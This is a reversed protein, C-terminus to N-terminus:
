QRTATAKVYASATGVHTLRTAFDEPANGSLSLGAPFNLTLTSRIDKDAAARVQPLLFDRFQQSSAVTGEYRLEYQSQDATVFSGEIVVQKECDPLTSAVGLLVFATDADFVRLELTGIAGFQARRADEWVRTLAERLVGEHSVAQPSVTFPASDESVKDGLTPPVLGPGPGPGPTPPPPTAPKPWINNERAYTATLVLAQGNIEITPYPDGKGCVLAGCKYVFEGLEIGKRIGRVFISDAELMPLAPDRRYENRLEETTIQGKKLPTRNMIFAPSDPEDGERRLKGAGALVRVVQAQGAGPNASANPVEVTIHALPAPAGALQERASPYFVHRYGQQVCVAVKQEADRYRENLQDRQHPALEQMLSPSRMDELAIRRRMQAKMDEVKSAEAVVFVLNNRNLRTGGDSSRKQFMNVVLDPVSIQASETSVATAEYGLVAMLPRETTSDDIDNPMAPFFVPQFVKGEFVRRIAENLRTRVDNPDVSREQRQIMQTLNPEVMFRFPRNPRDDLYASEAIFSRRADDIYSIDTGPALLSFRLENETAGQLNENFALTHFFISRAVFTTYTPLGKYHETDLQEALAPRDGEVATIDAALAPAYASQGLKTLIEQRIPSHSLDIHHLHIAYTDAPKKAWLRGVTRALLRLMGRVRQFNNLTSTKEKLTAMLEPHLPYGEYFADRNATGSTESEPLHERNSSWLRCYEDVIAHAKDHDIHAFLRRCLVKVTEDEETPDLLTAKRASISEAEAMMDAIAQNEEGYADIAKGDQKGIALTYVLAARPSGEVAKFLGSLFASLQRGASADAGKHKRLYIALEDMLILTPQDGILERITDAGPAVRAEDSRRVLEYGAKGQLACAIEGWPTFARVGDGMARGNLPDANEGDFAAVRVAQRPLLGPDIFEEPNAVGPMGLAAHALAILSHTKGGGFNTDLRFISAIQDGSGTLRLCVNHLLDKLGRTPHTNAFFLRPEQYEPEAQGRLVQALDAAFDSEKLSGGLVDERPTCADFITPLPM